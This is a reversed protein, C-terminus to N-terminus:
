MASPKFISFVAGQPDQVAAFRGVEPITKPQLLVKGGLSQAKKAARGVVGVEFYAMWAPPMPPMDKTMDFIGAVDKGAVRLLTYDMPGPMKSTELGLLASYFRAAKKSDTTVLEVWNLAGVEDRIRCGIHNKPQWLAFFAGLPDQAMAMRGAEMVDFPPMVLNGGLGKVRAATQDVHAVTFYVTWHAPMSKKEEPSQEYLAAADLGRIQQIHYFRGEGMPQPSDKWSFLARYFALAGKEDTTALEVWSPSGPAYKKVEPM